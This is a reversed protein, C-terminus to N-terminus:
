ARVTWGPKRHQKPEGVVVFELRHDFNQCDYPNGYIDKIRITIRSLKGMPPNFTKKIVPDVNEIRNDVGDGIIAYSRNFTNNISVNVDAGEISIVATKIHSDPNRRFPSAIKGDVSTYTYPGFGLLRAASNPAYEVDNNNDGDMLKDLDNFVLAFATTASSFVFNDLNKDYDVSVGLLDQLVGALQEPPYDGVPISFNVKQGDVLKTIVNNYPTVQYAKLPFYARILTLSTVDIFSEDFIITYYAPTPFTSLNRDSSNVVVRWRKFASEGMTPMPLTLEESYM